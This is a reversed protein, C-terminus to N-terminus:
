HHNGYTGTQLEALLIDTEETTLYDSNIEDNWLILESLTAQERADADMKSWLGTEVYKHNLQKQVWKEEESLIPEDFNKFRKKVNFRKFIELLINEDGEQYEIIMTKTM